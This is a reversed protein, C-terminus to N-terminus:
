EGEILKRLTDALSKAQAYLAKLTTRDVTITDRPATESTNGVDSFNEDASSTGESQGPYCPSTVGLAAWTKRGVVGDV